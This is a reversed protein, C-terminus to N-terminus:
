EEYRNDEFWFKRDVVLDLVTNEYEEIVVSKRLRM